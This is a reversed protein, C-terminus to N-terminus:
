CGEIAAFDHGDVTLVRAGDSDLGGAVPGGARGRDEPRDAASVHHNDGM